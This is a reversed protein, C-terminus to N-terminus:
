EQTSETQGVQEFMIRGEEDFGIPKHGVITGDEMRMWVTGDDDVRQVQGISSDSGTAKDLIELTGWIAMLFLAFIFGARTSAGRKRLIIAVLPVTLACTLLVVVVTNTILPTRPWLSGTLLHLIYITVSAAIVSFWALGTTIFIDRWGGRWIKALRMAIGLSFPVAAFLTLM